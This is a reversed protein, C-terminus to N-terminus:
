HHVRSQRYTGFAFNSIFLTGFFMGIFFVMTKLSIPEIFGNVIEALTEASVKARGVKTPDRRMCNEWARCAQEMAPVRMDPDCRNDSYQKSCAAIEQLIEASYEQVKSNVDRQITLLVHVMIVLVTGVMFINLGLQLYGSLVYPIDRHMQLKEVVSPEEVKSGMMALMRDVGRTVAWDAHRKSNRSIRNKRKVLSTASSTDMQVKSPTKTQSLDNESVENDSNSVWSDSDTDQGGTRQKASSPRSTDQQQLRDQARNFNLLKDNARSGTLHKRRSYIKRVANPSIPQNDQERTASQILDADVVMPEPDTAPMNFTFPTNGFVPHKVGNTSTSGSKQAENGGNGSVFRRKRSHEDMGNIGGGPAKTPTGNLWSSDEDNLDIDMPGVKSRFEPRQGFVAESSKFTFNMNGVFRQLQYNSLARESLYIPESSSNDPPTTGENHATTPDLEDVDDIAGRGMHNSTAAAAAAACTSSIHLLSSSWSTSCDDLNLDSDVTLQTPWSNNNFSSAHSSLLQSQSGHVLLVSSALSNESSDVLIPSYHEWSIQRYLPTIGSAAAAPAFASNDADRINYSSRQKKRPFHQEVVNDDDDDSIYMVM